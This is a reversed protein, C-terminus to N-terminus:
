LFNVSSCNAILATVMIIIKELSCDILCGDLCSEKKKKNM